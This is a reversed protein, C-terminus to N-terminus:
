FSFNIGVVIQRSLPFEDSGGREPDYDKLYKSKTFTFLNSATAYIRAKSVGARAAIKEPFTYGLSVNRIKVYSGDIYYLSSTGLPM